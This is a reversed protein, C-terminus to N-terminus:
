GNPFHSYRFNHKGDVVTTPGTQDAEDRKFEDHDIGAYPPGSNKHTGIGSQLLMTTTGAAKLVDDSTVADIQNAVLRRYVMDVGIKKYGEYSLMIAAVGAVHPSAQSTGSIAQYIDTTRPNKPDIYASFINHGPAWINMAKGYNSGKPGRGNQYRKYDIDVAGVSFVEKM